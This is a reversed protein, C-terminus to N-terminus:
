LRISNYLEYYQKKSVIKSSLKEDEVGAILSLEYLAEQFDINFYEQLFKLANGGRGCSFCKFIQLETNVYFSPNTESHFPCSTKYSKNGSGEKLDLHESVIDYIDVKTILEKYNM